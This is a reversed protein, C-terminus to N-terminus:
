VQAQLYIEGFIHLFSKRPSNRYFQNLIHMKRLDNM